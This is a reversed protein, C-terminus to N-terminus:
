EELQIRIYSRKRLDDIHERLKKKFEGEILHGEIEDRVDYFSKDGFSERNDAYYSEMKEFPLHIIAKIRKEIYESVIADDDKAKVGSGSYGIRFQKAQRLLLYRNIMNDLVKDKTIERDSKGAIRFSEELESSLIVDDDVIAVIRDLVEANSFFSGLVFFLSCLVFSMMCKYFAYPREEETKARLEKNKTREKFLMGLVSIFNAQVKMERGTWNIDM